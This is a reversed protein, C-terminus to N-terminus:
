QFGGAHLVVTIGGNSGSLLVAYVIVMGLARSVSDTTSM